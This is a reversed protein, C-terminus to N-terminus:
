EMGIPQSTCQWRWQACAFGHPQRGRGRGSLDVLYGFNVSGGGVRTVAVSIKSFYSYNLGASSQVYGQLVDADTVVTSGSLVSYGAYVYGSRTLKFVDGAKMNFYRLAFNVSQGLEMAFPTWDTTMVASTASTNSLTLAASNSSLVNGAKDSLDVSVNKIFAGIISSSGILAARDLPFLYSGATVMDPTVVVPDGLLDGDVRLRLTWGPQWDSTIVKLSAQNHAYFKYGLVGSPALTLSGELAKHDVSLNGM